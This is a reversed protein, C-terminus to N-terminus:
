EQTSDFIFFDFYNIDFLQFTCYLLEIRMKKM